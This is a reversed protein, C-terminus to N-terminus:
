FLTKNWRECLSHSSRWFLRAIRQKQMVSKNYDAFQTFNINMHNSQSIISKIDLKLNVSRPLQHETQIM